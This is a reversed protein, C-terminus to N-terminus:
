RSKTITDDAMPYAELRHIPFGKSSFNEEYETMINDPFDSRHLDYCVNRLEFGNAELTQVSYDFLPRNDTKMWISGDPRLIYRYLPLFTESTLRRKTHRKKPWPDSFNLYIREIESEAFIEQLQHADASLFRVNPLEREKVKEMALIIVNEVRELAIFNIEPHLAATETIFRGKGCGVELHIPHDNGFIKNWNGRNETPNLITIDTCLAMRQVLGKRNRPRM